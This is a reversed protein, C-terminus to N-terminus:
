ALLCGEKLKVVSSEKLIKHDSAIDSYLISRAEFAARVKCDTSSRMLTVDGDIENSIGVDM